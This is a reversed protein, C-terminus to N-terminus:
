RGHRWWWDKALASALMHDLSGSRHRYTFSEGTTDGLTINVRSARYRTGNRSVRDPDPEIVVSKVPEGDESIDIRTVVM